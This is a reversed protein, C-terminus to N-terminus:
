RGEMMKVEKRMAESYGRFIGYCFSEEEELCWLLICWVM